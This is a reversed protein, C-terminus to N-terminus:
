YTLNFQLFGFHGNMKNRNQNDIVDNGLLHSYGGLMTVGKYIKVSTVIDIEQAFNNDGGSATGGYGFNDRRFAGTGFYQLDNRKALYFQHFMFNIGVREHPQFKLQLVIDVLNQFALQDAFGYYLHNTPLMNFFTNHRDGSGDGSAFNVGFRLWPKSWVDTLQYGTELIAAYALHSDGNFKGAQGAGWLLVDFNGPGVPYIGLASFGLTYVEVKKRGALNRKDRYGLFFPRIETNKFWTGRKATVSLGGYIIDNQTRYADEHTFVGTTPKAAFGYFDYGNWDYGISVGDNSREVNTWGVTGVMRQSLRKIKLYKWNGEKYMAQTGLKIDHRGGRLYLGEIPRIEAWYQRMKSSSAKSTDGRNTFRQYLVGVGSTDPGLEWIRADQFEAFLIVAEDYNYRAALRNRWGFFTDNSGAFADWFETRMRSTFTLDLEHKGCAMGVKPTMHFTCLPEDPAIAQAEVSAFGACLALAMAFALVRGKPPSRKGACSNGSRDHNFAIRYRM